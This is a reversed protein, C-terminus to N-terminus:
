KKQQSELAALNKYNAIASEIDAVKKKLSELKEINQLKLDEKVNEEYGPASMKKDLTTLAPLTQKLSKELKKIEADFDVLGTLDM